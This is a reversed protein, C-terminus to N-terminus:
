LLFSINLDFVGEGKGKWMSPDKRRHPYIRGQVASVLLQISYIRRPCFHPTLAEREVRAAGHEGGGLRCFGVVLEVKVKGRTLATNSANCQLWPSKYSSRFNKNLKEKNNVQLSTSQRDAENRINKLYTTVWKQETYMQDSALGELKGIAQLINVM